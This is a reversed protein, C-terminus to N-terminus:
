FASSLAPSRVHGDLNSWSHSIAAACDKLREALKPLRDGNLQLRTGALSIAAAARGARDFIPAGICCLGIEDEEDDISYLRTRIKTFDERLKRLSTVTNANHRPFGHTRYLAELEEAPMYAGLVKGLATCHVEMKKGNWTAIRMSDPPDYKAILVAEGQDLVGLHVTLQTQHMLQMLFPATQERISLGCLSNSALNMLKLGFMYRGNIPTRHLYGTRELTVLLCHLSSKPAGSMVVLQSLSLGNKSKALFELLMLARKVAPVSPTRQAIAEDARRSPM